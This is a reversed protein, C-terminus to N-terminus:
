QMPLAPNRIATRTENQDKEGDQHKNLGQKHFIDQITQMVQIRVVTVNDIRPIQKM